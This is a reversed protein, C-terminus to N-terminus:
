GLQHQKHNEETGGPLHQSLIKFYAVVVELKDSYLKHLQSFM